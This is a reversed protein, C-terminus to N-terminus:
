LIVISGHQQEVKAILTIFSSASDKNGRILSSITVVGQLDEGWCTPNDWSLHRSIGIKILGFYISKISCISMVERIVSMHSVVICRNHSGIIVTDLCFSFLFSEDLTEYIKIFTGPCVIVRIGVNCITTSRM